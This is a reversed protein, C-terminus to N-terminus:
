NFPDEKGIGSTDVETEYIRLEAVENKITLYKEDELSFTFPAETVVEPEIDVYYAELGLATVLDKEARVEGTSKSFRLDGVTIVRSANELSILFALLEDYDGELSAKLSVARSAQRKQDSPAQSGTGFQLVKVLTGSETAIKEVQTMLIPVASESPVAHGFLEVDRDLIARAGLLESLKERKDKLEQYREEESAREDKLDSFGSVKPLVVLVVLAFSTLLALIALVYPVFTDKKLELGFAKM